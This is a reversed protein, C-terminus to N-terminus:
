NTDQKLTRMWSPERGNNLLASQQQSWRHEGDRNVIAYLRTRAKHEDIEGSQMARVVTRSDVEVRNPFTSDPQWMVFSGLVAAFQDSLQDARECPRLQQGGSGHLERPDMVTLPLGAALDAEGAGYSGLYDRIRSM